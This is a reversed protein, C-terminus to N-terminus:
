VILRGESQQPGFRGTLALVGPIPKGGDDCAFPPAEAVGGNKNGAGILTRDRRL